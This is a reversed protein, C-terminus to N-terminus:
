RRPLVSLSRLSCLRLRWQRRRQEIAISARCQSPINVVRDMLILLVGRIAFHKVLRANSWEGSAFKALRSSHFFAMGMGM